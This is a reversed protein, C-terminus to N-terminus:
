ILHTSTMDMICYRYRKAPAPHTSYTDEDSYDTMTSLIDWFQCFKIADLHFERGKMIAYQDCLYEDMRQKNMFDKRADDLCKFDGKCELVARNYVKVEIDRIDLSKRIIHAEEHWLVMLLAHDNGKLAEKLKATIYIRKGDAYANLEQQHLVKLNYTKSLRVLEAQIFTNHISTSIDDRYIYSTSSSLVIVIFAILKLIVSKM